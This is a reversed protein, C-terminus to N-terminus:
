CAKIDLVTLQPNEKNQYFNRSINFVIDVRSNNDFDKGVRESAGWFVAPWKFNGAQVLMRVHQPDGKGVLSLDSLVANRALFILQRNGEGYPEFRDIIDMIDPSMYSHPLEADIEIVEDEEHIVIEASLRECRALFDSLSSKPMNFGAAMAHGGNDNFLERMGELFTKANFGRVSRMSGVIADDLYALVIAPAKYYKALRSAIIGTLGRKMEKHAIIIMRKNYKIFSEGSEAYVKEWLDDGISKRKKNIELAEGALAATKTPDDCLLLEIAKGPRGLRGAANLIPAIQWSVDISSITKGLLNQCGILERLGLRKTKNLVDMGIGVLIRNEDVLPMLDALSGLAVLDLIEKYKTSLEHFKNLIIAKFLYYLINIEPNEAGDYKSFRCKEAMKFLSWDKLSPFLKYVEPTIDNLAIDVNQGFIKRLMGTQLSANYVYIEKGILFDELKTQNISVMGPTLTERMVDVETLNRLKIGEILISDNKPICNILCVTRNYLETQSFRLAWVLKSAVACGALNKFPYGCDEIQPNIIALADPLEEPPLHHDTVIVDIGLGAAREIEDKNSIGCDVTILLSIGMKHFTDIDAMTLGYSDDGEPAAWSADIGLEILAQYLITISTIGDVDRDGYVLVKEGDSAALNIRDVADEMEVFLFPMHLYNIDNELFFKLNAPETVGRRCLISASLLDAGYKEGIQKVSNKSTEKKNWIM